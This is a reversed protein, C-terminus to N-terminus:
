LLTYRTTAYIGRKCLIHKPETCDVVDWSGDQKLVVCKDSPIISGIKNFSLLSDDTWRQNSEM